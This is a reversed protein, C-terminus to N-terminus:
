TPPRSAFGLASQGQKKRRATPYGTIQGTARSRAERRPSVSRVVGPRSLRSSQAEIMKERAIATDSKPKVIAAEDSAGDKPRFMEGLAKKRVAEAEALSQRQDAETRMREDHQRRGERRQEREEALAQERALQAAKWERKQRREKAKAIEMM